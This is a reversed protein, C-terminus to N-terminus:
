PQRSDVTSKGLKLEYWDIRRTLFMVLRSCPSSARARGRRARLGRPAAASYLYGYLASLIVGMLVGHWGGRTVWNWYWAILLINASAGAIYARDFGIHESLALLLLYFMCM